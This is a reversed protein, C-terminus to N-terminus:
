GAWLYGSKVRYVSNRICMVAYMYGFVWIGTIFEGTTNRFDGRHHDVLPTFDEDDNGICVSCSDVCHVISVLDDARQIPNPLSSLM